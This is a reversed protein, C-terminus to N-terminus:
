SGYKRLCDFQRQIADKIKEIKLEWSRNAFKDHYIFWVSDPEAKFDMISADLEDPTLFGNTGILNGTEDFYILDGEELCGDSNGKTVIYMIYPEYIGM